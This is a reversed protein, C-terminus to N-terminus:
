RSTFRAVIRALPPRVVLSARYGAELLSMMGPLDACRALWRWGRLQRWVVVFGAAGSVLRGDPLRVHFRAGAATRDLGSAMESAPDAVDVFRLNRAGDRRRYLAIERRCLPCAGDHYLTLRDDRQLQCAITDLPPSAAAGTFQQHLVIEVVDSTAM